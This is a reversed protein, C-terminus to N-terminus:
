NVTLNGHVDVSIDIDDNTLRGRIRDPVETKLKVIVM